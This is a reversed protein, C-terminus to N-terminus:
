HSVHQITTLVNTAQFIHQNETSESYSTLSVILNKLITLAHFYLSCANLYRDISENVNKVNLSVDVTDERQLQPLDIIRNGTSGTSSAGATGTSSNNTETTSVAQMTLSKRKKKEENSSLTSPASMAEVDKTTLTDTSSGSRSSHTQQEQTVIHDAINTIVNIIDCFMECRELLNKFFMLSENMESSEEVITQPHLPPHQGYSSASNGYAKNSMDWVGKTYSSPRSTVSEAHITPTYPNQNHLPQQTSTPQQNGPLNSINHALTYGLGSMVGTTQPKSPVQQPSFMGPNSNNNPDVVVFDDDEVHTSQRAAPQLPPIYLGPTYPSRAFSPDVGYSTAPTPPPPMPYGGPTMAGFSEPGAFSGRPTQHSNNPYAYNIFPTDKFSASKPTQQNQLYSLDDPGYGPFFPSVGVGGPSPNNSSPTPPFQQHDSSTSRMKRVDSHSDLSIPILPNGRNGGTISPRQSHKESSPVPSDIKAANHLHNPLKVAPPNAHMMTLTNPSTSLPPQHHSAQQADLSSKRLRESIEQENLQHNSLSRVPKPQSHHNPLSYLFTFSQQYRVLDNRSANTLSSPSATIDIPHPLTAPLPEDQQKMLGAIGSRKLQDQSTRRGEM